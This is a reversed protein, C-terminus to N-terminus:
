PIGSLTQPTQVSVRNTDMTAVPLVSGVMIKIDSSADNGDYAITVFTDTTNTASYTGTELGRGGAIPDPYAPTPVEAYMFRGDAYNILINLDDGASTELIWTGV